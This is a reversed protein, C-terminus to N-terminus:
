ENSRATIELPILLFNFDFLCPFIKELKAITKQDKDFLFYFRNIQTNVSYSGIVDEKLEDNLYSEYKTPYLVMKKAFPYVDEEDKEGQMIELTLNREKEPEDKKLLPVALTISNGKYKHVIWPYSEGFLDTKISVWLKIENSKFVPPSKMWFSTGVFTIDKFSWLKLSLSFFPLPTNYICLEYAILIYLKPLNTMIFDLFENANPDTTESNHRLLNCLKVDLGKNNSTILSIFDYMSNRDEMSSMDFRVEPPINTKLPYGKNPDKLLNPVTFTDIFGKEIEEHFVKALTDKGNIKLGFNPFIDLKIKINGNKVDFVSYGFCENLIFTRSFIIREINFIAEGGLDGFVFRYKMLKKSKSFFTSLDSSKDNSPCHFIFKWFYPLYFLQYKRKYKNLITSENSTIKSNLQKDRQESLMYKIYVDYIREHM